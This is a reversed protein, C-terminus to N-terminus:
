ATAHPRPTSGTTEDLFCRSWGMASTDASRGGADIVCQDALECSAVASRSAAPTSLRRALSSSGELDAFLYRRGGAATAVREGSSTAWIVSPLIARITLIGVTPETADVVGIFRGNEDRLRM